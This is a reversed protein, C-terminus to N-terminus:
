LKSQEVLRRRPNVCWVCVCACATPRIREPSVFSPRRPPHRTHVRQQLPFCELVIAGCYRDLTGTDVVVVECCSWVVANRPRPPVDAPSARQQAARPLGPRARFPLTPHARQTTAVCPLRM